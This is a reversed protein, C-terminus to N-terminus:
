MGCILKSQDSIRCHGNAGQAIPMPLFNGDMHKVEYNGEDLTIQPTDAPYLRYDVAADPFGGGWRVALILQRSEPGVIARTQWPEDAPKPTAVPQIQPKAQPATDNSKNCAVPLSSLLAMFFYRM